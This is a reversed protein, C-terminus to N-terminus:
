TMRRGRTAITAVPSSSAAGPEARQEGKTEGPRIERRNREEPQKQEDLWMPQQIDNPTTARRRRCVLCKGVGIREPMSLAGAQKRQDREAQHDDVAAGAVEVEGLALHRHEGGVHAPGQEVRAHGVPRREEGGHRDGEGAAHREQLYNAAAIRNTPDYDDHLKRLRLVSGDRTIERRVTM